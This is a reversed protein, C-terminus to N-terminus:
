RCLLHSRFYLTVLIDTFAFFWDDLGYLNLITNNL